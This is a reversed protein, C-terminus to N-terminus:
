AVDEQLEFDFRMPAARRTPEWGAALARRIMRGVTRPSITTFKAGGDSFALWPDRLGRLVAVAQQGGSEGSHLTVSSDDKGAAFRWRYRVGDVTINRFGKAKTAYSM